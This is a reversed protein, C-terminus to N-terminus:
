VDIFQGAIAYIRILGIHRSVAASECRACVCCKIGVGINRAHEKTIQLARVAQGGGVSKICAAMTINKICQGQSPIRKLMGQHALEVGPVWRGTDQSGELSCAQRQFELRRHKWGVGVREYANLQDEPRGVGPSVQFSATETFRRGGQAILIPVYYPYQQSTWTSFSYRWTFGPIARKSNRM